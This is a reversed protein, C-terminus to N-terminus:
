PAQNGAGLTADHCERSAHGRQCQLGADAQGRRRAGSDGAAGEGQVDLRCTLRPRATGNAACLVVARNTGPWRVSLQLVNTTPISVLLRPATLIRERRAAGAASASATHRAM